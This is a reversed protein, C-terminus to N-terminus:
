PNEFGAETASFSAGNWTGRVKVVRSAAAAFFASATTASGDLNRFQTGASTVVSVGLLTLNPQTAATVLGQVERRTDLDNREVRTALISAATTGRFGRLELYDGTRLDAFRLPSVRSRAKDELQTSANLTVTVGFMTLTGAGANLADVTGLLRSSSEPKIEVKRAELVGAANFTGEVEVKLDLRLDSAAATAAGNVWTTSATTTVRQGGVDFDTASVFRNVIGELEAKDSSAAGLSCSRVEVRTAALVGGTLTNGKAEVCSTAALPGNVLTAAAYDVAQANITFRRATTDLGAIRGSLELETNAARREVRSAVIVGTSDPLGSVEVVHAAALGLISAPSIGGDFVTTGTVRVTQGLVVFTNAAANVSAIPGEVDDNYAVTRATGTRGDDSITGQVVVVQGVKLGTEGSSSGEVTISATSTSFEVGNVFISGFGTITGRAIGGGNIGAVPTTPSAGGSVTTGGPAAGSDGGGGGGCAVVFLATALALGHRARALLDRSSLTQIM